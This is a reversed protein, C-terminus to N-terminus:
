GTVEKWERIRYRKPFTRTGSSTSYEMHDAVKKGMGGREFFKRVNESYILKELIKEDDHVINVGDRITVNGTCIITGRFTDPTATNSDYITLNGKCYVIGEQSAPDNIDLTGSSTFKIIDPWNLSSLVSEDVFDNFSGTAVNAGLKQTKMRFVDMLYNDSGTMLDHFENGNITANLLEEETPDPADTYWTANASAGHQIPAYGAVYGDVESPLLDTLVNTKIGGQANIFSRLANKRAVENTIDYLEFEDGAADKYIVGSGDNLYGYITSAPQTKRAAVSELSKYYKSGNYPAFSPGVDFEYFAVGPILFNSNIIITSQGGEFPFNNIVSSSANPDTLSSFANLGIYYTKNSGTANGIKITSDQGDMQIDDSTWINGTATLHASSAGSAILLDRCYVNSGDVADKFIFPMRGAVSTTAYDDVNFDDDNFYDQFLFGNDNYIKNKTKYFDASFSPDKTVNLTAGNGTIQLDGYTYVNGYITVDAGTNVSIGSRGTVPDPNIASAYVDGTIHADANNDFVINGQVSLANAWIPNGKIPTYISKLVTDYSPKTVEIYTHVEKLDDLPDATLSAENVRIFIGIDDDPEIASWKAKITSIVSPERPESLAPTGIFNNYKDTIFHDPNIYGTEVNYKATISSFSNNKIVIDGYDVASVLSVLSELRISLMYFYVRDFLESTYTKIDSAYANEIDANLDAESAPPTYGPNDEFWRSIDKLDGTYNLYDDLTYELLYGGGDVYTWDILYYDHFFQQVKNMPHSAMNYISTDSYVGTLETPELRDMRNKVYERADKEAEILAKDIMREYETAKTDLRYFDKTWKFTKGSMGVNAASSMLAIVGLSTLVLIVSLALALAAGSENKLMKKYFCKKNM